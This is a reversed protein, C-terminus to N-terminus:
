KGEGRRRRLLCHRGWVRGRGVGVLREAWEPVWFLRGLLGTRGADLFRECAVVEWTKTDAVYDPELETPVVGDFQSDVLFECHNVDIYKSM